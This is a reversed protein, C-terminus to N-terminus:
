MCLDAGGAIVSIKQHHKWNHKFYCYSLDKLVDPRCTPHRLDINKFCNITPKLTFRKM